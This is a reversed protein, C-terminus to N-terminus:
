GISHKFVSQGETSYVPNSLARKKNVLASGRRKFIVAIIIVVTIVSVIVVIVIVVIGIILGIDSPRRITPLDTITESTIPVRLETGESDIAPSGNTTQPDVPEQPQRTTTVPTEESDTPPPTPQTTAM